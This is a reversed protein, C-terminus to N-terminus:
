QLHCGASIHNDPGQAWQQAQTNWLGNTGDGNLLLTM